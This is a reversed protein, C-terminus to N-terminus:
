LHNKFKKGAKFYFFDFMLSIVPHNFFRNISLGVPEQLPSKSGSFKQLFIGLVRFISNRWFVGIAHANKGTGLFNKLYDRYNLAFRQLNL